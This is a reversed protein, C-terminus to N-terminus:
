NPFSGGGGKRFNEPFEDTKTHVPKGLYYGAWHGHVSHMGTSTIMKHSVKAM